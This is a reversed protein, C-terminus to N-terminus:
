LRVSNMATTNENILAPLELAKQSLIDSVEKCPMDPSTIEAWIGYYAGNDSHNCALGWLDCKGNLKLREKLDENLSEADILIYAAHIDKVVHGLRYIADDANSSSWYTKYGKENLIKCATRVPPDFGIYDDDCNRIDEDGFFNTSYIERIFTPTKKIKRQWERFIDSELIDGEISDYELGRKIAEQLFTTYLATINISPDYEIREPLIKPHQVMSDPINLLESLYKNSVKTLEPTLNRMDLTHPAFGYVVYHLFILCNVFEINGLHSFDDM